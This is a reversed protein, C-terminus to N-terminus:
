TRGHYLGTTRQEPTALSREAASYRLRVDHLEVIGSPM